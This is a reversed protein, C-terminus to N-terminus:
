PCVGVESGIGAGGALDSNTRPALMEDAPLELEDKSCQELRGRRFSFIGEDTAFTFPPMTLGFGSSDIENDVGIVKLPGSELSRGLQRM